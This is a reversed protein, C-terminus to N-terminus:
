PIITPATALRKVMAALQTESATAAWGGRLSTRKLPLITARSPMKRSAGVAIVLSPAAQVVGSMTKPLQGTASYRYQPLMSAEVIRPVLLDVVNYTPGTPPTASRGLMFGSRQTPRAITPSQRVRKDGASRLPAQRRSVFKPSSILSLPLSSGVRQLACCWPQASFSVVIKRVTAVSTVALHRRRLVVVGDQNLRAEGLKQIMESDSRRM